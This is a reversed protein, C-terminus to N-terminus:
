SDFDFNISLKGDFASAIKALVPLSPVRSDEGSELRAVMSQSSGIKEALEKQTLSFKKRLSKIAMAIRTRIREEEYYVRVKPDELLKAVVDEAPKTQRKKM